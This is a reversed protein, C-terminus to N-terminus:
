KRSKLKTNTLAYIAKQTEKTLDYEKELLFTEIDAKSVNRLGNARAWDVCQDVLSPLESRERLVKEKYRKELKSQSLAWIDRRTVYLLDLDNEKTFRNVDNLKAQTEGRAGLWDIFRDTISPVESKEKEIRLKEIQKSVLMSANQIKSITDAPADWIHNLGKSQLFLEFIDYQGMYDNPYKRQMFELCESALDESSITNIYELTSPDLAEQKQFVRPEVGEGLIMGQELFNLILCKEDKWM